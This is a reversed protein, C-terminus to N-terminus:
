NTTGSLILFSLSSMLVSAFVVIFGLIRLSRNNRASAFPSRAPKAMEGVVGQQAGESTTTVDSMFARFCETDAAFLCLRVWNARGKLVITALIHCDPEAAEGRFRALPANESGSARLAIRAPGPQGVFGARRMRLHGSSLGRAAPCLD